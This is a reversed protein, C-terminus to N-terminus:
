EKWLYKALGESATSVIREGDESLFLAACGEQREILKLGKEPGLVCAATALGDALTGTPAVVTVSRRGLLGVGTKPDVIHAYRKGDIEVAQYADGSTSVAARKLLLYQTSADGNKKLPTLAVKWGPAEPPPEAVAVDGGAAVLARTIGRRHLVELARDAAYGKAIGGLDLLMGAVLLQVRHAKCDLRIKRYDVKALASKVEEPDPLKKTKRAVRWLRVLPGVSVDFAGDSEIAIKEATELVTILDYTVPVSGGGAKQCLQMLESDPLYDSMIKNLEAVRAFAAQAAAKATKEDRAYLVIRFTTGMHPEQFTFRELPAPDEAAFALRHLAAHATFSLTLAIMLHWHM